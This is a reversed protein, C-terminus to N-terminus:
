GQAKQLDWQVAWKEQIGLGWSCSAQRISSAQEKSNSVMNEKQDFGQDRQGQSDLITRIWLWNISGVL